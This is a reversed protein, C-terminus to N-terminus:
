AEDDIEIQKLSRFLKESDEYTIKGEKAAKLLPLHREVALDQQGKPLNRFFNLCALGNFSLEKKEEKIEAQVQIPEEKKVQTPQPSDAMEMWNEEQTYVGSLEEPFTRRLALSEAVKSLMVTPLNVWPGFTKGKAYESYLAVAYIAQTFGKRFVGVKAASPPTKELWVDRWQGDQGCFYPGDQGAYQGSRQALLRQGDISTFTSINRDRDCVFYIQKAMPELKRIQIQYWIARMQEDTLKRDAGKQFSVCSRIMDIEALELKVPYPIVDKEYEKKVIEM